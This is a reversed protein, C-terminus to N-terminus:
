GGFVLNFNRSHGIPELLSETRFVKTNVKGTKNVTKNQDVTYLRVYNVGKLQMSVNFLRSQPKAVQLDTIVCDAIAELHRSVEM